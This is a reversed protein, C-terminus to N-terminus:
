VYIFKYGKYTKKRLRLVDNIRKPLINLEKSCDVTSPYIKGSNVCMIPKKCKESRKKLIEPTLRIGQGGLAINKLDINTKKLFSIDLSEVKFCEEECDFRKGIFVMPELGIKKLSLIWNFHKSSRRYKAFEWARNGSGKGVYKPLGDRPDIHYYIYYKSEM